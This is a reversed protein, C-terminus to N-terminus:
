LVELAETPTTPKRLCSFYFGDTEAHTPLLQWGYRTSQGFPLSVSEVCVVESEHADSPTIHRDDTANSHSLANVFEEITDDNEQQLISCTCYLLTGGPALMPWLNRLMQQQLNAHDTVQEPSLLLKIDPHRRITGTGSCPADLLIHTFPNGSWWSSTCADAVQLTVEHGLHSAFTQTTQARKASIELAQVQMQQLGTRSSQKSRELIHFLKGGPAACADLLSITADTDIIQSWFADVVLQAGADQVSFWGAEWGPLTRIPQPTNLITCEEISSPTHAVGQENLHQFYTAPSIRTTNIRLTMPARMNNARLIDPAIEQYQAHLNATLWEPHDFSREDREGIGPEGGKERQIARLVGNILNKSWPRSVSSAAKVTENIAAHAPVSLHILQYAGVLMLHKLIQDIPKLPRALKSEVIDQLSFYHRLTGYLLEQALPERLLPGGHERLWDTTRHKEVVASVARAVAARIKASNSM